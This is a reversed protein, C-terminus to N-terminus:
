ETAARKADRKAKRAATKKIEAWLDDALDGVIEGRHADWAPRMYPEPQMSGVSKGNAQFREGTGFELLHAQQLAGAGVHVEVFDKRERRAEKAQTKSLRSSVAISDALEGTGATSAEVASKADAAIPALARQAVRRLVGRGLSKGLDALAAEVERLGEIKVTTRAM